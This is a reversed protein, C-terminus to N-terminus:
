NRRVGNMRLALQTARSRVRETRQKTGVTGTGMVALAKWDSAAAAPDDPHMSGGPATAAPHARCRLLGVWQIWMIIRTHHVAACGRGGGGSWGDEFGLWRASSSFRRIFALSLSAWARM